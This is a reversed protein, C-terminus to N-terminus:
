MVTELVAQAAESAESSQLAAEVERQAAARIRRMEMEAPDTNGPFPDPVIKRPLEDPDSDFSSTGTSL